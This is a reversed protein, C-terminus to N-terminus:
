NYFYRHFTRHWFICMAWKDNCIHTNYYQWALCLYGKQCLTRAQLYTNIRRMKTSIHVYSILSLKKYSIKFGIRKWVEIHTLYAYQNLFRRRILMLWVIFMCKFATIHYTFRVRIFEYNCKTFLKCHKKPLWLSLWLM